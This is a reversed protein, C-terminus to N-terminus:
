APPIAPARDRCCRRWCSILTTRMMERAMDIESAAPYSLWRDRTREAAAIMVPLFDLLQEQRFLPAAARRQARWRAGEAILIADLCPIPYHERLSTHEWAAQGM